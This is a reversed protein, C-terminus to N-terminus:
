FMVVHSFTGFIYSFLHKTIHFVFTVPKALKMNTSSIDVYTRHRLWCCIEALIQVRRSSRYLECSVRECKHTSAKATLCITHTHANLPIRPEKLKHM